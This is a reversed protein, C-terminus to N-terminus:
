QTGPTISQVTMYIGDYNRHQLGSGCNFIYSDLVTLIFYRAWNLTAENSFISSFGLNYVLPSWILGHFSPIQGGALFVCRSSSRIRGMNQDQVDLRWFTLLHIETTVAVQTYFKIMATKDTWNPM